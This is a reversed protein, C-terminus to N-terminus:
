LFLKQGVWVTFNNPASDIVNNPANSQPIHEVTFGTVKILNSLKIVIYGPFGKFAWCSGVAVTPSIVTRPTNTPYWIPIGFISIEASKTRYNETCRTSIIEGGASELSYDVLGTKDADYVALIDKVIKIVDAENLIGGHVNLNTSKLEENKQDILIKIQSKLKENIDEMFIGANKDVQKSFAENIKLELNQLHQELYNKAVFTNEIWEKLLTEDSMEPSNNIGLINLLSKRVSLDISSYDSFTAFKDDIRMLISKMADDNERKFRILDDSISTQGIKLRNLEDDYIAFKGVIESKIKEVDSSQINNIRDDLLSSLKNSELIMEIIKDLDINQAETNKQQSSMSVSAISKIKEINEQNNLSIKALISKEKEDLDNNLQVKIQNVIVEVDKTTLRYEYQKLADNLHNAITIVLRDNVEKILIDNNIKLKEQITNDVYDNIHKLLINFKEEDLNFNPQKSTSDSFLLGRFLAGLSFIPSLIWGLNFHPISPLSIDSFYQTLHNLRELRYNKTAIINNDDSLLLATFKSNYM